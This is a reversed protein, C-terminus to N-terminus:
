RGRLKRVFGRVRGAATPEPWPPIEGKLALIMEGATEFRRAPVLDLCRFVTEDWAPDIDAIIDRLRRPPHHRRKLLTALASGGADFPSRKTLMEFVILGLAYIDTAPTSPGPDGQEPAMYEPTGVLEDTETLRIDTQEDSLALGFDTIVVRQSTALDLPVMINAPKLDRHVVGAAHAADLGAAVQETVGLAEGTAYVDGTALRRALSQGPLLEMTLFFSKQGGRTQVGMDFIRCVNAHTVKRASQIERRFRELQVASGAVASNLSKLALDVGLATDRAAFVEGTGGTGLLRLIKYREAVMDGPSFAPAGVAANPGPRTDGDFSNM